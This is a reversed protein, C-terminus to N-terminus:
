QNVIMNAQKQRFSKNQHFSYAIKSLSILYIYINMHFIFFNM